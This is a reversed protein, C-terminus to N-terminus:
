SMDEVAKKKCEKPEGQQKKKADESMWFDQPGTECKRLGM